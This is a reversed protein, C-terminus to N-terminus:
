QITDTPPEAGPMGVVPPKKDALPKIGRRVKRGNEEGIEEATKAAKDAEPPDGEASDDTDAGDMMDKGSGWEKAEMRERYIDFARLFDNRKMEDMKHLKAILSFAGKHLFNKEVADAIMQGIDGALSQMKQRTSAYARLLQNFKKEPIVRDVATESM